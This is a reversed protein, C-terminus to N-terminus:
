TYLSKRLQDISLPAKANIRTENRRVPWSQKSRAIDAIRSATKTFTRATHSVTRAGSSDRKTKAAGLALWNAPDSRRTAWTYVLDPAFLILSSPQRIKAAYSMATWSLSLPTRSRRKTTPPEPILSNLLDWQADTLDRRSSPM